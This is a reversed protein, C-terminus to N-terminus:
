SHNPYLKNIDVIFVSLVDKTEIKTTSYGLDKRIQLIIEGFWEVIKKADRDKDLAMTRFQVFLRLVEDSAYVTMDKAIDMLQDSLKDQDIKKGKKLTEFFLSLFKSYLERKRRELAIMVELKRQQNAVVTHGIWTLVATLVIIGVTSWSM